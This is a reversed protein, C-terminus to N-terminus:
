PSPLRHVRTRVYSDAAWVKLPRRAPLQHLQSPFITFGCLSRAGAWEEVRAVRLESESGEWAGSAMSQRGWCLSASPPDADAACSCCAIARSPQAESTGCFSHCLANRRVARLCM